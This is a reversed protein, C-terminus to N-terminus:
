PAVIRGPAEGGEATHCGNCDGDNQAAKMTRTKGDRVVTATYPLAIRTESMFNGARNVALTHKKGDAGTLIVQTPSPMTGLCNDPEHLTPYVTGGASFLPADDGEEVHCSICAKGPTMQEDGEDDGETWFSASTCTLEIDPAGTVSSCSGEPMGDDVWKTFAAFESEALLGETPMPTVADHMRELSVVALPRGEYPAVLEDRSTLTTLAGARPPSGHCEACHQQVFTAVDCPLGRTTAEPTVIPETPAPAHSVAGIDPGTYCAAGAASALAFLM